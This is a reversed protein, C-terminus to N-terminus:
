HPEEDKAVMERPAITVWLSAYIARGFYEERKTKFKCVLATYDVMSGVGSVGLEVLLPM